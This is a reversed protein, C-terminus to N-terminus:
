PQSRPDTQTQLERPIARAKATLSGGARGRGPGETLLGERRAAYVDDRIQTASRGLAEAIEANRRRSGAAGGEAYYSAVLALRQQRTLRRKSPPVLGRAEKHAQWAGASLLQWGPHPHLVGIRFVERADKLADTLAARPQLSRLERTTLGGRPVRDLHGSVGNLLDLWTGPRTERWRSSPPRWGIPEGRPVVHVEALVPGAPRWVFRYLGFWDEGILQAAWYGEDDSGPDLPPRDPADADPEPEM